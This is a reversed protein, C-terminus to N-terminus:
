LDATNQSRGNILSKFFGNKFFGSLLLAKPSKKQAWFSNVAALGVPRV